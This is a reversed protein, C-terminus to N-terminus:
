FSCSFMLLMTTHKTTLNLSPLGYQQLHTGLDVSRSPLTSLVSTNRDFAVIVSGQILTFSVFLNKSYSLLIFTGFTHIVSFEVNTPPKLLKQFPRWIKVLIWNGRAHAEILHYTIICLVLPYVSSIYGLSTLQLATLNKSVCFPPILFQLADLSWIGYLLLIISTPWYGCIEEFLIIIIPYFFATTFITHSIYIFGTLKGSHINVNLALFVVFVITPPVFLLIIYGIVNIFSSSCEVCILGYYKYAALGYGEECENCLFGRRNFQSCLSSNVQDLQQPLPKYISHYQSFNNRISAPIYPCQALVVSTSTVTMCVGILLESTNGFQKVIHPLNHNFCCKGQHDSFWPPCNGKSTHDICESEVASQHFAAVILLSLLVAKM